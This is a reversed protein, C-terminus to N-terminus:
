VAALRARWREISAHPGLLQELADLDTLARPGIAAVLEPPPGGSGGASSNVVTSVVSPLDDPLDVGIHDLVAALFGTPDAVFDDFWFVGLRGGPFAEQWRQVLPASPRFQAVADDLVEEAPVDALRLGRDRVHKTAVSWVRDVPDRLTTILRVDPLRRQLALVQADPITLYGPSIEGAVSGAPAADFLRCYWDDDARGTFYRWDFAPDPRAPHNARSGLLPLASLNSKVRIGLHKHWRHRGVQSRNWYSLEKIPPM